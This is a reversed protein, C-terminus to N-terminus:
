LKMYIALQINFEMWWEPHHPEIIGDDCLQIADVHHRFETGLDHASIISGKPLLPAFQKLERSKCGGDCFLWTPRGGVRQLIVEQTSPLTEDVQLFEVGLRELIHGHHRHVHDISTVPIGRHIGWLGFITTVCGSGTGIEVISAIQSNAM